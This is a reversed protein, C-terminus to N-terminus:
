LIKQLTRGSNEQLKASKNTVRKEYAARPNGRPKRKRLEQWSSSATKSAKRSSRSGTAVVEPQNQFVDNDDVVGEAM